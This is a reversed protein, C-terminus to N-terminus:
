ATVVTGTPYEVVDFRLNGDRGVQVQFAIRDGTEGAGDLYCALWLRRPDLMEARFLSVDKVVVDDVAGDVAGRRIAIRWQRTPDEAM